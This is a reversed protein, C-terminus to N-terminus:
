ARETEGLLEALPERLPELEELLDDWRAWFGALDDGHEIRCQRAALSLYGLARARGDDGGTVFSARACVLSNRVVTRPSCLPPPVLRWAPASKDISSGSARVLVDLWEIREEDGVLPSPYTEAADLLTAWAVGLIPLAQTCEEAYSAKLATTLLILDDWRKSMAAPSATNIRDMECIITLCRRLIKERDEVNGDLDWGHEVCHACPCGAADFHRSLYLARGEGRLTALPAYSLYVEKGKKIPVRARVVLVDGLTKHYTNAVCSHNFASGDIFLASWSDLEDATGHLDRFLTLGNISCIREVWVPDLDISASSFESVYRDQMSGFVLPKAPPREGDYLAELISLTSPDDLVRAVVEEILERHAPPPPNKNDEYSRSTRTTYGRSLAFARE